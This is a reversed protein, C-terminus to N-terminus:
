SVAWFQRPGSRLEPDVADTHFALVHNGSSSALKWGDAVRIVIEGHWLRFDVPQVAPLLLDLCHDRELIELKDPSAM